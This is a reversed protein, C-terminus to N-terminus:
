VKQIEIIVEGAIADHSRRLVLADTIAISPTATVTGADRKRGTTACDFSDSLAAGASGGLANRLIGTRGTDNGSAVLVQSDLIRFAFPPPKPTPTAAPDYIVVDDPNTTGGNTFARRIVLKPAIESTVGTTEKVGLKASTVNADLIKATTVADSAIQAATITTDAIQTAGVAKNAIQSATITNDAIKAATVAKANITDTTVANNAIQSATITNDAIQTAGVAKNAIQSATITNDAMKAATVAKADLKGTTVALDNIKGTTVALNQIDSTAIADAAVKSSDGVADPALDASTITGTPTTVSVPNGEPVGEISFVAGAATGLNAAVNVVSDSVIVGGGAPITGSYPLPLSAPVGSVNRIRTKAM